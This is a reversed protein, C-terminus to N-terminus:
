PQEWTKCYKYILEGFMLASGDDVTPRPGSFVAVGASVYNTLGRAHAVDWAAQQMDLHSYSRKTLSLATLDGDRNGHFMEHIM